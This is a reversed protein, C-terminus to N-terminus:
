LEIPTWRGYCTVWKDNTSYPLSYGIQRYKSLNWNYLLTYLVIIYKFMFSCVTCWLPLPQDLQGGGWKWSSLGYGCASCVGGYGVIGAAEQNLYQWLNAVFCHGCPCAVFLASKPKCAIHLFLCCPTWLVPSHQIYCHLQLSVLTFQCPLPHHPYCRSLHLSSVQVFCTLFWLTLWCTRYFHFNMYFDAETLDEYSNQYKLWGKTFNTMYAYIELM